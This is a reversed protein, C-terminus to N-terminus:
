SPCLYSCLCLCPCPSLAFVLCISLCLFSCPCPSPLFMLCTSNSTNRRCPFLGRGFPIGWTRPRAESLFLCHTVLLTCVGNFSTLFRLTLRPNTSLINRKLLSSTADEYKRLHHKKEHVLDCKPEQEQPKEVTPWVANWCTEPKVTLDKQSKLKFREVDAACM